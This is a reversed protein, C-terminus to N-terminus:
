IRVIEYECNELKSVKEALDRVLTEAIPEQLDGEVTIQLSYMDEVYRVTVGKVNIRHVRYENEDDPVVEHPIPPRYLSKAIELDPARGYEASLEEMMKHFDQALAPIGSFLTV